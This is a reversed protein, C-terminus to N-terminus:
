THWYRSRELGGCRPVGPQLPDRPVSRNLPILSGELGSPCTRVEGMNRCPKSPVIPQNTGDQSPVHEYTSNPTSTTARTTSRAKSDLISIPPQATNPNGQSGMIGSRVHVGM